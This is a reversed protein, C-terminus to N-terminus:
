LLTKKFVFVTRGEFDLNEPCLCLLDTSINYHFFGKQQMLASLKQTLSQELIQLDAQKNSLLYQFEITFRQFM